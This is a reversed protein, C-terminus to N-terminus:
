TKQTKSSMSAMVYSVITKVNQFVSHSTFSFIEDCKILQSINTRSSSFYHRSMVQKKETCNVMFM